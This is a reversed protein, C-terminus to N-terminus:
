PHGEGGTVNARLIQALQEQYKAEVEELSRLKQEKLQAIQEALTSDDATSLVSDQSSTSGESTARRDRRSRPKLPSVSSSSSADGPGDESDYLVRQAKREWKIGEDERIMDVRKTLAELRMLLELHVTEIEVSADRDFHCTPDWRLYYHAWFRLSKMSCSPVIVDECSALIGYRSIEEGESVADADSANWLGDSLPAREVAPMFLSTLSSRSKPTSPKVVPGRDEANRGFYFSRSRPAVPPSSPFSTLASAELPQPFSFGADLDRVIKHYCSPQLLVMDTDSESDWNDMNNGGFPSGNSDSHHRELEHSLQIHTSELAADVQADTAEDKSHSPSSAAAVTSGFAMSTPSSCAASSREPDFVGTNVRYDEYDATLSHVDCDEHTMHLISQPSEVYEGGLKREFCQRTATVSAKWKMRPANHPQYFPNLVVSRDVTSLFSWLSQTPHLAEEEVRERESDYLFTGFRCSYLHDLILILYRENFEFASPSQVLVQWVCDIWQLFVPSIENSNNSAGHGTRDRFKHGFSCWEKEILVQFGQVTRYYPDILLETLATLQATRDWGDSCHILVSSKQEKVIRVIEVASDLIRSIHDLWHTSALQDLWKDNNQKTTCLDMLKHYSKRMQHINEIGMFILKCETLVLSAGMTELIQRREASDSWGSAASPDNISFSDGNISLEATGGAITTATSCASIAAAAAANHESAVMDAYKLSATAHRTEYHETLEYGARGVTKQAVANKWPRADIIVLKTSSPNTAAIAQILFVDKDCQKQGLGVLPQSSRCIVAGTHRDRWSLVPIRGKSRFKSAVALVSDSVSSPVALISPYTPCLEYQDNINSLRWRNTSSSLGMRQFEAVADYVNWGNVAGNVGDFRELSFKAFEDVKGEPEGLVHMRVLAYTRDFQSFTQKSVLGEFIFHLRRFDKGVIELMGTDTEVMEKRKVREITVLPVAQYAVLAESHLDSAYPLEDERVNTRGNASGVSFRGMVVEGDVVGDPSPSFVLRYNTVYLRGVHEIRDLFRVRVNENRVLVAEGPLTQLFGDGAGHGGTYDTDESGTRERESFSDSSAGRTFAGLVHRRGNSTMIGGEMVDSDPSSGGEVATMSSRFATTPRYFGLSDSRGSARARGEHSHHRDRGGSEVFGRGSDRDATDSHRRPPQYSRAKQRDQVMKAHAKKAAVSCKACVRVPAFFGSNVLPMRASSCADCFVNGCRRCHHRRLMLSFSAQCSYCREALSDPVWAVVHRRHDPASRPQGQRPTLHLPQPRISSSAASTLVPSVPVARTERSQVRPRTPLM